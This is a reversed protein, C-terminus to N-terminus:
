EYLMSDLEFAKFIARLGTLTDRGSVRSIPKTSERRKFIVYQVMGEGLFQLGVRNGENDKWVARLNGNDMLVLNGKRLRTELGVFLWFDSESILSLSYGDNESIHRLESVRVSYAQFKTRKPGHKAFAASIHDPEFFKASNVFSTSEFEFNPPNCIKKHLTDKDTSLSGPIENYIEKVSASEYGSIPFPVLTSLRSSSSNSKSTMHDDLIKVSGTNM